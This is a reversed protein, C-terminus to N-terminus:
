ATASAEGRMTALIAGLRENQEPNIERGASHGANLIALQQFAELWDM